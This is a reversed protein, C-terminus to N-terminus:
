IILFLSHPLPRAPNLAHFSSNPIGLTLPAQTPPPTTDDDVGLEGERESEAFAVQMGNARRETTHTISQQSPSWSMYM